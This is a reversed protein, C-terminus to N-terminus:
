DSDPEVSEWLHSAAREWKRRMARFINLKEQDGRSLKEPAISLAKAMFERELFSYYAVKRLREGRRRELLGVGWVIAVVAM